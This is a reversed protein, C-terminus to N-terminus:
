LIGLYHLNNFVSSIRILKDISHIQKFKILLVENIGIFPNLIHRIQLIDFFSDRILQLKLDINCSLLWLLRLPSWIENAPFFLLPILLLFLDLLWRQSLQLKSYRTNMCLYQIQLCFCIRLFPLRLPIVTALSLCFLASFLFVISSVIFILGFLNNLSPVDNM